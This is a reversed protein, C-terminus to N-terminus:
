TSSSSPGPLRDDGGVLLQEGPVALLQEGLGLAMADLQAELGATHAAIGTMLTSRSDIIALPTCRMSPMTLPVVLKM